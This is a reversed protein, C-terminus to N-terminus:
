WNGALASGRNSDGITRCVRPPVAARGCVLITKFGNAEVNERFAVDQALRAKSKVAEKQLTTQQAM